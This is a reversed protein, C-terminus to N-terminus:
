SKCWFRNLFTYSKLPPVIVKSERGVWKAQVSPLRQLSISWGVDAFCPGQTAEGFNVDNQEANWELVKVGEGFDVTVDWGICGIFPLKGHLQM